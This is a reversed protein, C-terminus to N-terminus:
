FFNIENCNSHQSIETKVDYAYHAIYVTQKNEPPGVPAVSSLISSYM